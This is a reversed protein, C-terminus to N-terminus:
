RRPAGGSIRDRDHDVPGGALMNRKPLRPAEDPSTPGRTLVFSQVSFNLPLYGCTPRYSQRSRLTQTALASLPWAMRVACARSMVPASLAVDVTQFSRKM